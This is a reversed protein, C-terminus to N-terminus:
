PRGTQGLGNDGWCAVKGSRLRACTHTGFTSVEAAPPLEKVPTPHHRDIAPGTASSGPGTGAGASSRDTACSRAPPILARPSGLGLGISIWSLLARKVSKRRHIGM